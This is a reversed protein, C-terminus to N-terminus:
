KSIFIFDHNLHSGEQSIPFNQLYYKFSTPNTQSRNIKNFNFIKQQFYQLYLYFNTSIICYSGYITDFLVTFSMFLLQPALPGPYGPGNRIILGLAWGLLFVDSSSQPLGLAVLLFRRPADMDESYQHGLFFPCYTM